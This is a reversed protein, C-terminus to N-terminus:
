SGLPEISWPLIYAFEIGEDKTRYIRPTICNVGSYLTSCDASQKHNVAYQVSSIVCYGKFLRKHEIRLIGHTAVSNETFGPMVM